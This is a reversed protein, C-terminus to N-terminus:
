ERTGRAQAVIAEARQRAGSAINKRAAGLVREGIQKAEEVYTSHVVAFGRCGCCNDVYPTEPFPLGSGHCVPCTVHSNAM